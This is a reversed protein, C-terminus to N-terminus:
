ELTLLGINHRCFYYRFSQNEVGFVNATIGKKNVFYECYVIKIDEHSDINVPFLLPDDLDEGKTVDKKHFLDVPLMLLLSHFRRM